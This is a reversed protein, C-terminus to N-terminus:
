NKGFIYGLALAIFPFTYKWMGAILEKDQNTMYVVISTISVAILMLCCLIAAINRSSNESDGWFRGIWGIRQSLMEKEHEFQRKQMDLQYQKNQMDITQEHAHRERDLTIQADVDSNPNYSLSNGQISLSAQNNVNENM